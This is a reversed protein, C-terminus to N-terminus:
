LQHTDVQITTIPPGVITEDRQIRVLRVKYLASPLYSGGLISWLHNLHEFNLNYFDFILKELTAPFVNTATDDEASFVPKSQFLEVTKSLHMLSTGYDEFNFAFLLYINLFLPPQKIEITGNRRVYQSTNKLTHEEEINVLSVYVGPAGATEKLLPINDIIAESDDIALYDKIEKRIYEIADNIM